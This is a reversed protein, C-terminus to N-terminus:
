GRRAQVGAARLHARRGAGLRLLHHLLPPLPLLLLGLRLEDGGHRAKAV